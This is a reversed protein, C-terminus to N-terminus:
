QNLLNALRTSAATPTRSMVLLYLGTVNPAITTALTNSGHGSTVAIGSRGIVTASQPPIGTSSVVVHGDSLPGVSLLAVASPKDHVANASGGLNLCSVLANFNAIVQTADPTTGNTLVYPLACQANGAGASALIAILATFLSAFPTTQRM